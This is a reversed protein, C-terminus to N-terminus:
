LPLDTGKALLQGADIYVSVLLKASHDILLFSFITAILSLRGPILHRLHPGAPTTSASSEPDVRELTTISCEVVPYAVPATFRGLELSVNISDLFARTGIM